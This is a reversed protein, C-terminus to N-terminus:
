GEAEKARAIERRLKPVLKLAGDYDGTLIRGKMSDCLAAALTKHRGGLMALMEEIFAMQNVTLANKLISAAGITGPHNLVYDENIAMLEGVIDQLPEIPISEYYEMGADQIMERIRMRKEHITEETM